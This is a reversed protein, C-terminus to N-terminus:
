AEREDTPKHHREFVARYEAWTVRSDDDLDLDSFSSGYRALGASAHEVATLVGDRDTDAKMFIHQAIQGLTYSGGAFAANAGFIVFVAATAIRTM